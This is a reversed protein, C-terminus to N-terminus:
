APPPNRNGRTAGTAAHEHDGRDTQHRQRLRTSRRATEGSAPASRTWATPRLHTSQPHRPRLLHYQRGTRGGGREPRRGRHPHPDRRHSIRPPAAPRMGEEIGLLFSPEGFWRRIDFRDGRWPTATAGFRPVEALTDLLEAFQGSEAVHHAEDVMVLSPRYGQRAYAAATQVTACTVGRLDHPKEDGTLLQTRVTKPLHHWLARELQEVLDKQHAVVLVKAGPRDRLHRAIVEGGILTKGLGTALILLARDASLLDETLAQFARAQYPRLEREPLRLTALRDYSDLLDRGDWLFVPAGLHSLRAARERAARGFRQNTAVVARDARYFALANHVEDVASDPVTGVRKWKAQLVWRQGSRHTILDGGEDGPGDIAALDTFGLHALLRELQRTFGTPGLELLFAPSVFSDPV